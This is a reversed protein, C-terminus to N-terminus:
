PFILFQILFSLDWFYKCSHGRAFPVNFIDDISVFIKMSTYLYIRSMIVLDKM